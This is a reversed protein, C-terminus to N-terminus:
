APKKCIYFLKYRQQWLQKAENVVMSLLIIIVFLWSRVRDQSFLWIGIDKTPYKLHLLWPRTKKSHVFVICYSSICVLESMLIEGRRSIDKEGRYDGSDQMRCDIPIRHYAFWLLWKNPVCCGYYACSKDYGNGGSVSDSSDNLM